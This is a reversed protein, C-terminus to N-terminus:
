GKMAALLERSRARSVRLIVPTVVLLSLAILGLWGLAIPGAQPVFSLELGALFRQLRLGAWSGQFGMLTGLVCATLAIVLVEAFLLRALMGRTAGIARLVGFEFRRADISAVMINGVGLCGILMAFVAVITAIRLSSRGIELIGEMIERGSGVVAPTGGLVARIRGSAEEDSLAMDEVYGIQILDISDNGFYKKLDARSGFVSHVAQNAYEKGIDFYKNILDLGPSSVVGVIDFSLEEGRYSTTFTDGVGLGAAVNFEEAIVVAGGELLRRKATEPDGEVWHLRTMEFMPEPEFAIFTTGIQSSFARVGFTEDEIRQLTIACTEAVFPLEEIRDQLEPDLPTWGRVFAQPFDISGLWDRLVGYGNTWVAVLMALGVMLAGATFGHRYPTATVVNSLLGRPLRMAKSIVPGTARALICALPVGIFFYGIFMAPLGTTAYGWFIVQGDDPVGVTIAQVTLGILGILTALLIGGARPRRARISLSELPSTRAAGIAPWVAGILGAGIAGLTAWAIGGAEVVLGAPLREPFAMTMAWALLIGLPVGVVAGLLGVVGGGAIQTAALVGRNAGICRLIGLERRRELMNTTLGTLVIFAAAVYALISTLLFVFQNAQVTKEIGSTIRATPEVVIKEGFRESLRDALAVPDTGDTVTILIESLKDTYGSIEALADRTVVGEPRAVLEIARGQEVGVLTLTIPEGFRVVGLEDGLEAGLETVTAPNLVVEDDAEVRRGEGIDPDRMAYELEPEIGVGVVTVTRGTEPHRLTLPSRLRPAAAEVGERDRVTGLVSAPFRGELVEHVRIDAAGLANTVRWAMGASLSAMACAVSAVLATSLAVAGALLATRLKRGGLNSTSLRWLASM